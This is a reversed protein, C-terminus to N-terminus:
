VTIKSAVKNFDGLIKDILNNLRDNEAKLVGLQSTLSEKETLLNKNALAVGAFGALAESQEKLQEQSRALMKRHEDLQKQLDENQKVVEAKERSTENLSRKLDEASKVQLDVKKELERAEEIKADFARLDATLQEPSLMKGEACLRNLAQEFMAAKAKNVTRILGIKDKITGVLSQLQPLLHKNLDIEAAVTDVMALCCKNLFTMALIVLLLTKKNM